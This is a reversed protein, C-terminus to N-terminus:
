GSGYDHIFAAIIEDMSADVSFGLGTARLTEFQAPWGEVIGRIVPDNTWQILKRVDEGQMRALADVMEGVTVALGPLNITCNPALLDIKVSLARLFSDVVQKPSTIFMATEPPVPCTAQEGNLPERIISSAFTSAAKNPKGPRVVVTPLRLVMGNIFGKRSYDNILLECMAKQAGYSSQPTAATYDTIVDPMDGGFVAVSSAMIFRPLSSREKQQRAAKLLTHTLEFNVNMGLEFDAEAASSVVAALHYIVDFGSGFLRAVLAADGIDGIEQCITVGVPALPAEWEAVDCLVLESVIIDRDDVRLNRADLLAQALRRGIFGGAGTILVRM